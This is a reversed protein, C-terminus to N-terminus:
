PGAQRLRFERAIASRCPKCFSLNQVHRRGARRSFDNRPKVILCKRCFEQTNPDGGARVIVARHHLLAHYAGDQCIVLNGNANNRKNGDVHHVQAGNPLRRGLARQAIAVHERVEGPGSTKYPASPSFTGTRKNHGLVFRMPEGKRWGFRTDSQRPLKTQEGCGCQCFGIPIPNVDAMSDRGGHGRHTTLLACADLRERAGSIRDWVGDITERM